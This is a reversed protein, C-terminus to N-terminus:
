SQGLEFSMSCFFTGMVGRAAHPRTLKKTLEDLETKGLVGEAGVNGEDGGLHLIEDLAV